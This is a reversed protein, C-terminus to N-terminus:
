TIGPASSVELNAFSGLRPRSRPSRPIRPSSGQEHSDDAEGEAQSPEVEICFNPSASDRLWQLQFGLFNILCATVEPRLLYDKCFALTRLVLAITADGAMGDLNIGLMSRVADEPDPTELPPPGLLGNSGPRAESGNSGTEDRSSGAAGSAHPGQPSGGHRGTASPHKKPPGQQIPKSEKETKKKKKEPGVHKGGPQLTSSKLPSKTQGGQSTGEEGTESHQQESSLSNYSISPAQGNRAQQLHWIAVIEAPLARRRFLSSAPSGEASFGHAGRCEVPKNVSGRQLALPNEAPLDM